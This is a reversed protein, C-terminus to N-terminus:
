KKRYEIISREVIRKEHGAEIKKMEPLIWCGEGDEDDDDDEGDVRTRGNKLHCKWRSKARGSYSWKGM